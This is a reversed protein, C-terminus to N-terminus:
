KTKTTNVEVLVTGCLKCKTEAFVVESTITYEGCKPCMMHKGKLDSLEKKYNELDNIRGNAKYM